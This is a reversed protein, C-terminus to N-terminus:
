MKPLLSRRPMFFHKYTQITHFISVLAKMLANNYPTTLSALGSSGLYTPIPRPINNTDKQIM